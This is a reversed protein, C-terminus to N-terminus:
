STRSRGNNIGSPKFAEKLNNWKEQPDLKQSTLKVVSQELKEFSEELKKLAKEDPVSKKTSM